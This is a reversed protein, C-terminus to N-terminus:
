KAIIIFVVRRNKARGESTKNDAIFNTAGMGKIELREAPVGIKELHMKIAQARQRSVVSNIRRTGTIDAYGEVKLRMNPNKSLAEAVEFLVPVMERKLRTSNFAFEIPQATQLVDGRVVARGAPCGKRVTEGAIGPCRDFLDPVGDKDEDAQSLMVITEWNKGEYKDKLEYVKMCNESHIKPKYDEPRAPCGGAMAVIEKLDYYKPCAQDHVKPNFEAANEPCRLSLEVASMVYVANLDEKSLTDALEYVKSCAQDHVKPNFNEPRSPCKIILEAIDQLEYYKPCRQDHMAPNFDKQAPCRDRLEVIMTELESEKSIHTKWTLREADRAKFKDTLWKYTLMAFGRARPAGAGSVIGGGGGAGVIFGTKGIKYKVGGVVEAPTHVRDNFFHNTPSSVFGEASVSLGDTINISVGGSFRFKLKGRDMNRYVVKPGAEAGANLAVVVHKGIAADFVIDGGGTANGEGMYYSEKGSPVTVFPAVSLGVPYRDRDLIQGKFGARVDGINLKWKSSPATAPDPDVYKEGPSVPIDVSMELWDTLGIAGFVHDELLTNVVKRTSTREKLPEYGYTFLNGATFQWQYLTRSDLIHFFAGGDPNPYFIMLNFRTAAGAPRLFMALLFVVTLTFFYAKKM